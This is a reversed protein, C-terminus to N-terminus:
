RRGTHFDSAPPADVDDNPDDAAIAAFSNSADVFNLRTNPEDAAAPFTSAHALAKHRLQQCYQINYLAHVARADPDDPPVEIDEIEHSLADLSDDSDTTMNALDPVDEDAQIQNVRRTRPPQLHSMRPSPTTRMPTSTAPGGTGGGAAAAATTTTMLRMMETVFDTASPPATPAMPASTPHPVARCLSWNLYDAPTDTPWHLQDTLVFVYITIDAMPNNHLARTIARVLQPKQFHNTPGNESLAFKLPSRLLAVNIDNIDTTTMATPEILEQRILCRTVDIVTDIVNDKAADFLDTPMIEGSYVTNLQSSTPAHTPHRAFRVHVADVKSYPHTTPAM